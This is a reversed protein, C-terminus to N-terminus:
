VRTKKPLAMVLAPIINCEDFVIVREFETLNKRAYVFIRKHMRLDTLGGKLSSPLIEKLNFVTVDDQKMKLSFYREFDTNSLKIIATKM